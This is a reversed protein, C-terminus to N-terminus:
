RSRVFRINCIDCKLMNKGEDGSEKLCNVVQEHTAEWISDGSPPATKTSDIKDSNKEVVSNHDNEIHTKMELATVNM